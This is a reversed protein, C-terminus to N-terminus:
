SGLHIHTVPVLYIEQLSKLADNEALCKAPSTEYSADARPRCKHPCLPEYRHRIALSDVCLTVHQRTGIITTSSPKKSFFM